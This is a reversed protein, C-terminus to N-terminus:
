WKMNRHFTFITMVHDLNWSRIPPYPLISIIAEVPNVTIHCNSCVMASFEMGVSDLTVNVNTAEKLIQVTQMARAGIDWKRKLCTFKVNTSTTANAVSDLELIVQLVLYVNTNDTTFVTELKLLIEFNNKGGTLSTKPPTQWETWPFPTMVLQPNCKTYTPDNHNLPSKAM